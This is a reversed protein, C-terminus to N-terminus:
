FWSRVEPILETMFISLYHHMFTLYLWTGYVTGDATDGGGWDALADRLTTM